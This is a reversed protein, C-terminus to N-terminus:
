RFGVSERYSRARERFVDVIVRAQQNLANDEPEERALESRCPATTAPNIRTTMAGVYIQIKRLLVACGCTCTRM